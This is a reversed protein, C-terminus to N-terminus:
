TIYYLMIYQSDIYTMNRYVYMYMERERERYIFCMYKYIHMHMYIYIYIYIDKYGTGNQKGSPDPHQSPATPPAPSRIIVIMMM